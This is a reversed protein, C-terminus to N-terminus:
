SLMEADDVVGTTTWDTVGRSVAPFSADSVAARSSTGQAIDPEAALAIAGLLSAVAREVAHLEHVIDGVPDDGGPSTALRALRGASERLVVLSPATHAGLDGLARAAQDAAAARGVADDRAATLEAVSLWSEAQKVLVTALMIERRGFGAARAPRRAIIAALPQGPEGILASCFPRGDEIGTRVGRAGLVRHVWPEDFAVLDVSRRQKVGFEDGAYRVAGDEALLVMEVDAGGFLRAAATVVVQASTDISRGAAEEQGRALEAFLRAEAARATQEDYSLWLVLVPSVVGVLGLPQNVALWAALVGLSSTAASHIAGIPASNWLISLTRQGTMISVAAAVLSNNVLFFLGMGSAAAEVGGGLYHALGAGLATATTLQAVNFQLKLYPQRRARFAVASGVAVAIVAWAGPQLVYASAIVGETLSFTYRQRGFALHVVATESIIVGAMLLIPAWWPAGNWGTLVTVPLTVAFAIAAVLRIRGQQSM